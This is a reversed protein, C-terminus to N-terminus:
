VRGVVQRRFVWICWVLALAVQVLVIAVFTLAPWKSSTLLAYGVLPQLASALLPGSIGLALLPLLANLVLWALGFTTTPNRLQGSLLSIGTLVLADRLLQLGVLAVLWPVSLAYGHTAGPWLMWLIAAAMGLVWSVPWLPLAQLAGRWQKRSAHWQVRRWQPLGDRLAYLAIYATALLAMCSIWSLAAGVSQPVLGGVLLALAVIGLPWAWPLTAVDLRQSMQRWLALWGLALLGLGIVTHAQAPSLGWGWWLIHGDTTQLLKLLKSTTMGPLWWLLVLPLLVTRQWSWSKNHWGLLVANMLWVQLVMGSLVALGVTKLNLAQFPAGAFLGSAWAAVAFCLVYLWANLTSGLWKGWAMQWPSLASLRQWDWTNDRLEQGLSSTALLSGYLVSAIWLGPVAVWEIARHNSQSFAWPIAVLLGSLALTWGIQRPTCHLWLQRVFEANRKM